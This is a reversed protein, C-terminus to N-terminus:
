DAKAVPIKPLVKFMKYFGAESPTQSLLTFGHREYYAIMSGRCDLYAAKGGFYNRGDEILGECDTLMEAGSIDSGTFADNRALQGIFLGAFHDQTNRGPTRGLVKERKNGSINSFSVSTLALTFYAVVDLTNRALYLFTRSLASIEYDIARTKLFSEVDTDRACRFERLQVELLKPNSSCLQERLSVLVIDSRM